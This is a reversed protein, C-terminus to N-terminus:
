FGNTIRYDLSDPNQVKSGPDPSPSSNHVKQLDRYRSLTWPLIAIDDSYDSAGIVPVLCTIYALCPMHQGTGAREFCWSLALPTRTILLRPLALIIIGATCDGRLQVATRVTHQRGPNFHHLSWSTVTCPVHCCVCAVVAATRMYGHWCPRSVCDDATAAASDRLPPYLPPHCPHSTV